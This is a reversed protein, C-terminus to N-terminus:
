EVKLLLYPREEWVTTLHGASRAAALAGVLAATRAQAADVRDPDRRVLGILVYDVHHDRLHQQLDAAAAYREPPFFFESQVFPTGLLTARQAYFGRKELLLLVRGTPPTLRNIAAMAHAYDYGVWPEVYRAMSDRGLVVRWQDRLLTLDGLPASAATLLLLAAAVWPRARRPLAALGAAALLVVFLAAPLIFRAQQSTALWAGGCVLAPWAWPRARPTAWLAWGALALCLLWQWGLAGDFRQPAWAITLPAAVLQGWDKAGYRVTTLNHHVQSVAMAAPDHPTFLRAYYPYCPNGTHWWPRVFYLAVLALFVAVGLLLARRAPPTLPWRLVLPALALPFVAATLKIGTAMAMLFAAGVVPWRQLRRPGPYHRLVLLCALLNLLQYPEVYIEYVLTIGVNSYLLALALAAAPWPRCWRRLLRYAVAVDLLWILYNLAGPTIANGLRLGLLNLYEMGSTLASYPNDLYVAAYGDLLWRKPVELHYVLEDWGIPACLAKGLPVLLPLALLWCWRARGRVAHRLVAAVVARERVLAWLGAGAAAGVGLWLAWGPPWHVYGCAALIVSLLDLGIVGALLAADVPQRQVRARGALLVVAGLGYAALLLALAVAFGPASAGYDPPLPPPPPLM